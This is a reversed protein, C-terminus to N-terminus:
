LAEQLVLVLPIGFRLSVVESDNESFVEGQCKGQVVVTTSNTM